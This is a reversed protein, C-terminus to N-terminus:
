LTAGGMASNLGALYAAIDKGPKRCLMMQRYLYSSCLEAQSQDTIADEVKKPIM